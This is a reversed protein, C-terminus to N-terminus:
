LFLSHRNAHFFSTNKNSEPFTLLSLIFSLFFFIIILINLNFSEKALLRNSSNWIIDRGIQNKKFSNSNEQFTNVYLHLEVNMLM